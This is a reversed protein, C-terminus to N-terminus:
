AALRAQVAAAIGYQPTDGGTVKLTNGVATLHTAGSVYYTTDLSNAGTDFRTSGGLTILPVEVLNFNASTTGTATRWTSLDRLRVRQQDCYTQNSNSAINVIELIDWGRQQYGTSATNILATIADATTNGNLDIPWDNRGIEFLLINKGSLLTIQEVPAKAMILDVVGEPDNIRERM